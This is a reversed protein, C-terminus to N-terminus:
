REKNKLIKRLERIEEKSLDAEQLLHILMPGRRGGFVRELLSRSEERLCEEREIAPHYLYRKGDHTTQLAGKTVLRGLLTRITRSRWGKRDSLEDVVQKSTVPSREWIVNIVEWEAGSITTENAM